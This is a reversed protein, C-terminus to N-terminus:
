AVVQINRIVINFEEETMSMLKKNEEPSLNLPKIKQWRLANRVLIQSVTEM